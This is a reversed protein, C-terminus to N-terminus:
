ASSAPATDSSNGRHSATEDVPTEVPALAEDIARQMRADLEPDELKAKAVQTAMEAYRRMKELAGALVERRAKPFFDVLEELLANTAHDIPDGAMARGFDADSIGKADAEERCVAFIVDCLLVPDAILRDLLKGGDSVVDMLDVDCLSRVRKMADVNIAVTWTRGANDNFTRM